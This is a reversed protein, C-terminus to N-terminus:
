AGKKKCEGEDEGDLSKFSGGQIDAGGGTINPPADDPTTDETPPYKGEEMIQKNLIDLYVEAAFIAPFSARQSEALEMCKLWLDRSPRNERDKLLKYVLTDEHLDSLQTELPLEFSKLIGIDSLYEFNPNLQKDMKDINALIKLLKLM